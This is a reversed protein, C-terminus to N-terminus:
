GGYEVECIPCFGTGAPVLISCRRNACREVLSPVIYNDYVNQQRATLPIQEEGLLQRIIGAEPERAYELRNELAARRQDDTLNRAVALFEDNEAKSM